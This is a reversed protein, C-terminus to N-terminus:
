MNSYLINDEGKLFPFFGGAFHSKYGRVTSILTSDGILNELGTNWEILLFRNERDMHSAVTTSFSVNPDM